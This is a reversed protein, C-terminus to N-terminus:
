TRELLKLRGEKWKRIPTVPTPFSDDLINYYAGSNYADAVGETCWHHLPNDFIPIDYDENCVNNIWWKAAWGQRMLSIDHAEFLQLNRIQRDALKKEYEAFPTLKSKPRVSEAIWLEGGHKVIMFTHSPCNRFAVNLKEGTLKRYEWVKRCAIIGGFFSASRDSGIVGPWVIVGNLKADM